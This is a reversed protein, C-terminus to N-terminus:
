GPMFANGIARPLESRHSKIKKARILLRTERFTSNSRISLFGFTEPDNLRQGWWIPIRHAYFVRDTISDAAQRSSYNARVTTTDLYLHM